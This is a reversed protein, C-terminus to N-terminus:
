NPMAVAIPAELETTVLRPTLESRSEDSGLQMNVTEPGQGSSLSPLISIRWDPLMITLVPLLLLSGLALTWVLHGTSAAAHRAALSVAGAVLMIFASKLMVDVLTEIWEVSLASSLLSNMM